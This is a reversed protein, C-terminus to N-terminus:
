RSSIKGWTSRPTVAGRQKWQRQGCKMIRSGGVKNSNELCAQNVNLFHALLQQMSLTEKGTHGQAALQALGRSWYGAVWHAHTKCDTLNTPLPEKMWKPTYDMTSGPVIYKGRKKQGAAARKALPEVKQMPMTHGQPMEQLHYQALSQSYNFFKKKCEEDSSTDYNDDDRMSKTMKMVAKALQANGSSEATNKAKMVDRVRLIGCLHRPQTEMPFVKELYERSLYTVQWPNVIQRQQLAVCIDHIIQPDEELQIEGHILNWLGWPYEDQKETTRVTEQAEEEWQDATYWEDDGYWQEEDYVTTDYDEQQTNHYAVPEAYQIARKKSKPPIPIPQPNLEETKVAKSKKLKKKTPKDTPTAGDKKKGKTRLKRTARPGEKVTVADLTSNGEGTADVTTTVEDQPSTPSAPPSVLDISMDTPMEM